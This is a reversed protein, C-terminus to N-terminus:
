EAAEKEHRAMAAADQGRKVVFARSHAQLDFGRARSLRLRVPHTM